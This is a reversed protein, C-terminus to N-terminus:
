FTICLGDYAPAIHPPCRREIDAHSLDHGIHTLLGRKAHLSQIAAISQETTLHSRHPRPRLADLILTDIGHLLAATADPIEACDPIYALARGQCELKYGWTPDGGHIVPLPTVAFPGLAFPQTVTVFDIQPLYAGPTATGKFYAFITELVAVCEPSAYVAIREGQVTNFRRLDDLGFVHDAHFHTMLIADVRPIKERLAQQRFDTATDILLSYGAGRVWLGSRLRRDRPDTSACVACDCGILPVGTSTGSGLFTATPTSFDTM